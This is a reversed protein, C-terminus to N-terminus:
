NKRRRRASATRTTTRKETKKTETEPKKDKKKVKKTTTKKKAVFRKSIAAMEKLLTQKPIKNEKDISVLLRGSTNWWQSPFAKDKQVQHDLNLKECAKALKLLHPSPDALDLSVRRGKKRSLNADFYEPYFVYFRKRRLLM